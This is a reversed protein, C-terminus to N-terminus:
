PEHDELGASFARLVIFPYFGMVGPVSGGSGSEFFSPM